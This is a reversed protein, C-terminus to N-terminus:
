EKEGGSNDSQFGRDLLARWDEMFKERDKLNETDEMETSIHAEISKRPYTVSPHCVNMQPLLAKINLGM